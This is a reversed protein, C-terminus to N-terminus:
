SRINTNLLSNVFVDVINKDFQIGSEKKLINIAEERGRKSQYVRDTTIADFADAVAIIRSGIPINEGKLNDPYGTGDYREHHHRIMKSITEYGNIEGILSEGIIPHQKMKDFEETTLRGPKNLIKEPVGIKGIDHLNAAIIIDEKESIDINMEALIMTVYESVSISHLGTYADKADIFKVFSRFMNLYQEEIHKNLEVSESIDDIHFMTQYANDNGKFPMTEVLLHKIRSNDDEFQIVSKSAESRLISSEFHSKISNLNKFLDIYDNGIFDARSFISEMSSNAYSIEGNNEVILIGSSITELIHNSFNKEYELRLDAKRQKFLLRQVYWGNILAYILLIFFLLSESIGMIKNHAIELLIIVIINAYAIISIKKYNKLM